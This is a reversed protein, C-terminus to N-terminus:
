RKRGGPTAKWTFGFATFRERSEAALIALLLRNMLHKNDSDKGVAYPQDAFACPIAIPIAELRDKNGAANSIYAVCADLSGTLMQNVLMDGTPSQVAVNKMVLDRTGDERLTVQTLAGMACQKEHGIGVRLGPKGLDRLRRIGHPNGKHVLLVLQNSSVVSPAGFLPSVQDMFEKDCAFFADPATGIKMQAVLTGCGDYKTSIEVGEREQFEAVTKEIAPRLMAGALLRIQPTEAWRDGDIVAFGANAFAKLGRDRAALFRAFHLAATPQRGSRVVCASVQASAKDLAPEAVVELGAIQEVTVDWVFGADVSGVVIDGAVDTVTPKTVVVCPALPKWQGSRTLVEAVLRGVAAAEPNAQAVRLKRGIIDDISRVGKPNGKKVALVPRMRALPLVEDILGKDRATDIYDEEAPLFLDARDSVQLSALLTNSGGYQLQVEVGYEAEYERAVAEVAPKLGAACYVVLPTTSRSRSWRAPDIALFAILGALVGGSALFVLWASSLRSSVDAAGSAPPYVSVRM